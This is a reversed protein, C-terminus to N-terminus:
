RNALVPVAKSEILRADATVLTLGFIRASAVLFIDAPDRQPLNARHTERAVEFTVTAEVTRFARFTAALWADPDGGVEIRGKRCLLLFEWVSIPSLWRENDPSALERRIRASVREPEAVAWFWIHTDLLLKM